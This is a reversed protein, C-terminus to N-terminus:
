LSPRWCGCLPRMKQYLHNEQRKGVMVRLSIAAASPRQAAHDGPVLVSLSSDPQLGSADSTLRAGSWASAVQGTFRGLGLITMNQPVSPLVRSAQNGDLTMM